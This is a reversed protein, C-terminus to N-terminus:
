AEGLYTDCRYQAWTRTKGDDCKVRYACYIGTGVRTEADDSLLDGCTAASTKGRAWPDRLLVRM